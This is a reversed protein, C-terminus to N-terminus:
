KVKSIIAGAYGVVQDIDGSAEGSDTYRTVKASNAGLHLAAELMITVPIVGCMSIRNSTVTQYLGEPDMATLKELALQDKKTAVQRSEYHSMDSSAVMLVQEPHNRITLFLAQAVEKCLSYSIHSIVLPVITLNDQLEQLFPLQVELSHEFRHANEDVEIVPSAEQLSKAFSRNVSITGMPMKWEALSLSIPPGQGHHNPGLIVVTKPIHISNLAEGSVAGSYIYGAHPSVVGIAEKKPGSKQPLLEKVAQTLSKADGPYFRNAVAPLRKM